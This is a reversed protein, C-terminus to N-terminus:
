DRWAGAAAARRAYEGFTTAPRGTLRPVSDDPVDDGRAALAQFAAVEAEVEARERGLGLQTDLYADPDGSFRVVRGGARGVVALAEAFGLAEPGLVDYTRGGHGAGTLVAAAVDAVDQADVFAQRLNGVPVALEGALVADRFFGEDFNQDMWGARLVTWEAGSERVAREADLLRTDGMEEIAGSSLLVIRRVGSDVALRVFDRDVPVGDPAMLYLATSGSVAPKWTPPVTWDFPPTTSRSLPRVACGQERLRTTLRRGTTGTAGLVAIPETM